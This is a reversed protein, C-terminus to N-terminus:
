KIVVKERLSDVCISPYPSVLNLSYVPVVSYVQVLYTLLRIAINTYVFGGYVFIHV